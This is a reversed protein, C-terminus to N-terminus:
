KKSFSIEFSIFNLPLFIRFNEYQPTLVSFIINKSHLRFVRFVLATHFNFSKGKLLKKRSILKQSDVFTLVAMKAM